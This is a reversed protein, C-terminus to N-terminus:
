NTTSGVWRFFIYYQDSRSMKGLKAPQFNFFFYKSVGGGLCIHIYIYICIQIYIYIHLIGDRGVMLDNGYPRLPKEPKFDPLDDLSIKNAKSSPFSETKQDRSFSGFCPLSVGQFISMSGSFPPKTRIIKKEQEPFPSKSTFWGNMKLPTAPTHYHTM